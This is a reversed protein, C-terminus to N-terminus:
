PKAISNLKSNWFNNVESIAEHLFKFASNKGDLENEQEFQIFVDNSEGFMSDFGGVFLGENQEAKIQETSQIHKPVKLIGHKTVNCVDRILEADPCLDYIQEQFIKGVINREKNVDLYIVWYDRMHDLVISALRGKRLDHKNNVFDQVTPQVTNLYYDFIYEKKDM